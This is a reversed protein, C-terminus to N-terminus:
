TDPITIPAICFRLTGFVMNYKLILPYKSKVYLEVTSDVQAKSFKELYKSFFKGEFYEEEINKSIWNLGSPTPSVTIITEGLDGVAAFEVDKGSGRIILVNSVHSLEKVYKQLDASPMSIVYEFQVQPIIVDEIDLALIKIRHTTYIRRDSNSVIIELITPNDKRIRWELHHSTTVSRLIKYLYAVYVGVYVERPCYYYELKNVVLHVMGIKGPDLSVLKVLDPQFKFNVETILDKLVDLLTKWQIAQSTQLRVIYNDDSVIEDRPTQVVECPQITQALPPPLTKIKSGATSNKKRQKPVVETKESRDYDNNM